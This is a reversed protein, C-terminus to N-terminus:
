KNEDKTSHQEKHSSCLVISQTIFFSNKVRKDTQRRERKREETKTNTQVKQFNKKIRGGDVCADFFEVNKLVCVFLSFFLLSSLSCVKRMRSKVRVEEYVCLLCKFCMFSLSLSENTTKTGCM